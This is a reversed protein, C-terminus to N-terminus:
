SQCAGYQGGPLQRFSAMRESQRNLNRILFDEAAFHFPHLRRIRRDSIFPYEITRYIEKDSLLTTRRIQEAM